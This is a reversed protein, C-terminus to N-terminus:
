QGAAAGPTGSPEGVGGAGVVGRMRLAVVVAAVCVVGSLALLWMPSKGGSPAATTCSDAPDHPPPPGVERGGESPADVAPESRAAPPAEPRRSGFLSQKKPLGGGATSAAAGDAVSVASGGTAGAASASPEVAAKGGAAEDREGESDEKGDEEGVGDEVEKEAAGDESPAGNGGAGALAKNYMSRNSSRYEKLRANLAVIERRIEADGPALEGARKLDERARELYGLKTNSAGRRFLAKVNKPDHELVQTCHIVAHDFNGLKWSCAALNLHAPLKVSHVLAREEDTAFCEAYWDAFKLVAQEYLKAAEVLEGKKYLANGRERLENAANCIVTQEEITDPFKYPTKPKRYSFAKQYQELFQEKSMNNPDLSGLGGAQAMASSSMAGAGGASSPSPASTSLASPSCGLAGGIGGPMGGQAAAIAKARAEASAMRANNAREKRQAAEEAKRDEDSDYLTDWKSYNTSM